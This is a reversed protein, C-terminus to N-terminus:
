KLTKLLALANFFHELSAPDRIVPATMMPFSTLGERAVRVAESSSVVREDRFEYGGWPGNCTWTTTAQKKEYVTISGTDFQYGFTSDLASLFNGIHIFWDVVFSFKTLEYVLFIPNTVGLSSLESAPSVSKYLIRGSVEMLLSKSTATVRNGDPVVEDSHDERKSRAEVRFSEKGARKEVDQLHKVLGFADAILPRWGYQLQLWGNAIAQSQNKVWASDFKGSKPPKAGLHNAAAKIDGKRLAAYAKGISNVTDALLRSTQAREGFLQLLNIDQNKIKSLMKQIVENRMNFELVSGAAWYLPPPQGGVVGTDTIIFDKHFRSVIRGVGYNTVEEIYGFSLHPLTRNQRRYYYDTTVNSSRTRSGNQRLRSGPYNYNVGYAYVNQNYAGDTSFPSSMSTRSM